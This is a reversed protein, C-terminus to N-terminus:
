TMGPGTGQGLSGEEDEPPCVHVCMCACVYMCAHAYLSGEEDEPPCVHVCMCARMHM